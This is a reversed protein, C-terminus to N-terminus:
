KQFDDKLFIETPINIINQITILMYVLLANIM